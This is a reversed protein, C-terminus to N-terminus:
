LQIFGEQYWVVFAWGNCGSCLSCSTMHSDCPFERRTQLNRSPPGYPDAGGGHGRQGRASSPAGAPDRQRERSRTAVDRPAAPAPVHPILGTRNRTLQPAIHQAEGCPSPWPHCRSIPPRISPAGDCRM